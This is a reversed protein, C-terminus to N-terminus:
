QLEARLTVAQSEYGALMTVDAANPEQNAAKAATISRLARASKADLEALQKIIPANLQEFTFPTTEWVQTPVGNVIEVHSGVLNCETPPVAAAVQVCNPAVLAAMTSGDPLTVLDSPNHRKSPDGNYVWENIHDAM